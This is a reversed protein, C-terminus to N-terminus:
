LPIHVHKQILIKSKYNANFLNVPISVQELRGTFILYFKQVMGNEMYGYLAM